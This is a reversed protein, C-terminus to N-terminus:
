QKRIEVGDKLENFVPADQPRIEEELSSSVTQLGTFALRYVEWSAALQIIPQLGASFVPYVHCDFGLATATESTRIM